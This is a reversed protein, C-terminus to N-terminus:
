IDLAKRLKPFHKAMKEKFSSKTSKPREEQSELIAHHNRKITNWLEQLSEENKGGENKKTKRKRYLKM